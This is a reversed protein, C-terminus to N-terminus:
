APEKGARKLTSRQSKTYPILFLHNLLGYRYTEERKLFGMFGDLREKVRNYVLRSAGDQFWKMDFGHNIYNVQKLDKAEWETLTALDKKAKDLSERMGKQATDAIDPKLLGSEDIAALITAHAARYTLRETSLTTDTETSAQLLTKKLDGFYREIKQGDSEEKMKGLIRLLPPMLESGSAAQHIEKDMAAFQEKLERDKILTGPHAKKKNVLQELASGPQLERTAFTRLRAASRMRVLVTGITRAQDAIQRVALAANGRTKLEELYHTLIVLQNEAFTYDEGTAREDSLKLDIGTIIRQIAEIDPKAAGLDKLTGAHKKLDVLAKVFPESMKAIGLHREGIEDINDSSMKSSKAQFVAQQCDTQYANAEELIRSLISRKDETSIDAQDLSELDKKASAFFAGSDQHLKTISLNTEDQQKKGTFDFRDNIATNITLGLIQECRKTIQGEEDQMQKETVEEGVEFTRNVLNAFKYTLKQLQDEQVLSQITIALIHTVKEIVEEILLDDIGQHIRASLLKGDILDRLEDVTDCKSKRLIEFLNKVLGALETKKGGSLEWKSEPDQGKEGAKLLEWIEDLQERIVTNLAHTYGRTDELSDTATDILSSVITEPNKIWKKVIWTLLGSQTTKRMVNVAFEQYLEQTKFGLNSTKKELEGKLMEDLTGGPPQTTAVSKYAGGLIILYRTFNETVQKRLSEFKEVKHREIYSFIEQFYISSAKETFRKVIKGYFYYIVRAYIRTGFSVKREKLEEFFLTRLDEEVIRGRVVTGEEVKDKERSKEMLRLYFKEDSPKMGCIDEYIHKMTLFTASNTVLAKRESQAMKKWDQNQVPKPEIDIADQLRAINESYLTEPNAVKEAAKGIGPIPFGFLCVKVNNERLVKIAKEKYDSLASLDQVSNAKGLDKLIKELSEKALKLPEKDGMEGLIHNVVMALVGAGASFARRSVAKGGAELLKDLMSGGYSLLEAASGEEPAAPAAGDAPAAPAAGDVPAAPAPGTAPTAIFNGIMTNLLNEVRELPPNLRDVAVDMIREMTGAYGQYYSDVVGICNEVAPLMEGVSPPTSSYFSSLGSMFQQLHELDIEQLPLKEKFVSKKQAILQQLHHELSEGIAKISVRNESLIASRLGILEVRTKSLLPHSQGNLGEDILTIKKAIQDILGGPAMLTETITAVLKDGFVDAAKTLIGVEADNLRFEIFDLVGGKAQLTNKMKEDLLDIAFTVSQPILGVEPAMLKEKLQDMSGGKDFLGSNLMDTAQKLIANRGTVLKELLYDCSILFAGQEQKVIGTLTEHLKGIRAPRITGIWSKYKQRCEEDPLSALHVFAGCLTTFFRSKEADLDPAKIRLEEVDNKFLKNLCASVTRIEEVTLDEPKATMKELLQILTIFEDSPQKMLAQELTHKLQAGFVGNPQILQMFDKKVDAAVKPFEKNAGTVLGAGVADGVGELIRGLFGRQPQEPAAPQLPNIPEGAPPNLLDPPIAM